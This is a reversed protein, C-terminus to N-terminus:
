WRREEQYFPMFGSNGAYSDRSMNRTLMERPGYSNQYSNQHSMPYPAISSGMNGNMSGSMPTPDYGEGQEAYFKHYKCISAISHSLMEIRRLDGESMEAGNRYKEQLLDLEKCLKSELLSYKGYIM